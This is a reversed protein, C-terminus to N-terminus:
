EVLQWGYIKWHGNEDKRLLFQENTNILTTEQRLVFNCYLRAWQYGDETFEEVDTSASTSYSSVVLGQQNMSIIDTILNQMYGDQTQNAILDDDYLKQIQMALERIEEETNTENYFCQTIDCYYKVVEKPTPPYNADLNRLLVQQTKTITGVDESNERSTKHSLYYYFGVLLAALICGIIILKITKQGENAKGNENKM